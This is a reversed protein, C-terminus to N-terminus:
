ALLVEVFAAIFLGLVILWAVFVAYLIWDSNPKMGEVWRTLFPLGNTAGAVALILATFMTYSITMNM